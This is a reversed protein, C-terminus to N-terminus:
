GSPLNDLPQGRPRAPGLAGGAARPQEQCAPKPPLRAAQVSRATASQPPPQHQVSPISSMARPRTPYCVRMSVTLPDANAFFPRRHRGTKFFNHDERGALTESAPVPSCAARIPEILPAICFRVVSLPHLWLVKNLHEHPTSM